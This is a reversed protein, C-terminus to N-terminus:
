RSTNDKVPSYLTPGISTQKYERNGENLELKLAGIIPLTSDTRHTLPTSSTSSTSSPRSMFSTLEPPSLGIGNSLANSLAYGSMPSSSMPSSSLSTSSLPSSSLPSSSMSTSSMSSISEISTIPSISGLSSHYATVQIPPSRIIFDPDYLEDIAQSVDSTYITTKIPEDWQYSYKLLREKSFWNGRNNLTYRYQEDTSYIAVKTSSIGVATQIEVVPHCVIDDVIGKNRKGRNKTRLETVVLSLHGDEGNTYRYLLSGIQPKIITSVSSGFHHTQSETPKIIISELM